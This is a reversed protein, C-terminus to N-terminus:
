LIKKEKECVLTTKIHVNDVTNPLDRLKVLCNIPQYIIFTIIAYGTKNRFMFNNPLRDGGEGELKQHCKKRM